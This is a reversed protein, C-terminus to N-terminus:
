PVCYKENHWTSVHNKGCHSKAELPWISGGFAFGAALVPREPGGRIRAGGIWLFDLRLGVTSESQGVYAKGNETRRNFTQREM